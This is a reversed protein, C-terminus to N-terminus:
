LTAGTTETVVADIFAVYDDVSSCQQVAALQGDTIWPWLARNALAREHFRRATGGTAPISLIPIRLSHALDLEDQTGTGGGAVIVYNMGNVINIRGFVGTAARFGPPRYHDAIYTVVEIGVGVPGHNIRYRRAVALRALARVTEDVAEIDCDARRSGCIAVRLVREGDDPLRATTPVVTSPASVMQTNPQKAPAEVFLAAVDEHPIRLADALPGRVSLRPVSRGSEWRQVTSVDVSVARALAEQSLGRSLRLEVLGHRPSNM